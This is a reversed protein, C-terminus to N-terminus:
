RVITEPWHSTVGIAGPYSASVWTGAFVNSCSGSWQVWQYSNAPLTPSWSNCSTPELQQYGAHSTENWGYSRWGSNYPFAQVLYTYSNYECDRTHWVTSGASVDHCVTTDFTQLSLTHVEPVSPEDYPAPLVSEGLLEHDLAFLVEPVDPRDPHLVTYVDVLSRLSATEAVTSSGIADYVAVGLNGNQDRNVLLAGTPSFDDRFLLDGEASDVPSIRESGCATLLLCLVTLQPQM